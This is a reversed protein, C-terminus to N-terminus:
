EYLVHANKELNQSSIWKVLVKAYANACVGEGFRGRTGVKHIAGKLKIGMHSIQYWKDLTWPVVQGAHYSSDLSSNDWARITWSDELCHFDRQM